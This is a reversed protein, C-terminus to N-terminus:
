ELPSIEGADNIQSVRLEAKELIAHCYASLQQGREFLKVSDELTIEGSELKVVIEELEEFAAEFSLANIDTM